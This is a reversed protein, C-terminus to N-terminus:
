GISEIIEGFLKTLDMVSSYSVWEDKLHAGSSKPGIRMVPVKLCNSIVNEDSVSRDYGATYSGYHSQLVELVKLVEKNKLDTIYPELYPTERVKVQVDVETREDLM